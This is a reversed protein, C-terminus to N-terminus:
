EFIEVAGELRVGAAENEANWEVVWLFSQLAQPLATTGVVDVVAEELGQQHLADFVIAFAAAVAAVVM